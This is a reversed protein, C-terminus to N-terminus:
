QVEDDSSGPKGPADTAAPADPAGNEEDVPEPVDFGNAAEMEDGGEDELDPGEDFGAASQSDPSGM